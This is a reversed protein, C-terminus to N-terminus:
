SVTQIRASNSNSRIREILAAACERDKDTIAADRRAGGEERARLQAARAVECIEDVEDEVLVGKEVLAVILSECLTLGALAAGVATDTRESM